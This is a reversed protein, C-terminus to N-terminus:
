LFLVTMRDKVPVEGVRVHVDIRDLLPGSNKKQYQEVQTPLCHCQKLVSQFYGCPCPNMAGVLTFAAPLHISGSARTLTISGSELPQRLTELHARPFELVEDLFLVGRHALSIEGPRIHAGGGILGVESISHHPSRFPRHRILGHQTLGCVSYIRTVDLIEEKSLPPLFHSFPMRWSHKERDQHDM